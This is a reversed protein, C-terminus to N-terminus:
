NLQTMNHTMVTAGEYCQSINAECCALTSVHWHQAVSTNVHLSQRCNYVPGVQQKEKDNNKVASLLSRTFSKLEFYRQKQNELENELFQVEEHQSVCM